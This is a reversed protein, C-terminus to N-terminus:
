VGHRIPPCPVFSVFSSVSLVPPSVLLWDFTESAVVIILPTCLLHLSFLMFHSLFVLPLLSPELSLFLTCSLFSLPFYFACMTFWTLPPTLVPSRQLMFVWEVEPSWGPSLSSPPRWGWALSLVRHAPLHLVGGGEAWSGCWSFVCFVVCLCICIDSRQHQAQTKKDTCQSHVDDQQVGEAAARWYLEHETYQTGLLSIVNNQSSNLINRFVVTYEM